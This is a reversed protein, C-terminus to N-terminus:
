SFVGQNLFDRDHHSLLQQLLTFVVRISQAHQQRSLLPLLQL